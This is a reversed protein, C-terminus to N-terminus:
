AANFRDELPSPRLTLPHNLRRRRQRGLGYRIVQEIACAIVLLILLAIIICAVCQWRYEVLLEAHTM